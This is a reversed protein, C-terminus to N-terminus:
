SEDETVFYVVAVRIADAGGGGIDYQCLYEGGKVLDSSAPGSRSQSVDIADYLATFKQV